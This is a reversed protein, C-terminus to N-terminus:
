ERAATEALRRFHGALRPREGANMPLPVARQNRLFASWEHAATEAHNIGATAGAQLGKLLAERM